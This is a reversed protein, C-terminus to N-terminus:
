IKTEYKTEVPSKHSLLFFPCPGEEGAQANLKWLGENHLTPIPIGPYWQEYSSIRRIEHINDYCSM